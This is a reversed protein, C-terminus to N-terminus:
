DVRTRLPSDGAPWIGKDANEGDDFVLYSYKGYHPVKRGLAALDEPRIADLLGWTLGGALGTLVVSREGSAPDVSASLRSAAVIEDALEGRGLLWVAVGSELAGTGAPSSSSPQAATGPRSGAGGTGVAGSLAALRSGAEAEGFVGARQGKSWEAALEECAARLETPLDDAIVIAISDAGLVQSLRTPIEERHLRRLVHFDPDVALLTPEFGCAVTVPTRGATVRVERDVQHDHDGLVRVPVLVAYPAGGDMPEQVLDFSLSREEHSGHVRPNEIHLVPAGSREIWQRRWVEPDVDGVEAFSRFLDSWTARRWLHDRYFRHLADDFAADGVARRLQHIVMMSKSYGVAQTTFDHRERFETLPLDEAESVYDRYNQLANLRYRMADEEGKREEYFYDAGYTTLGECWNGESRDVFVGNGWWNHLIEHGYSTDLIFPLRIVRDGLLTFSPMGFGSQWFNEVLAFKAFPYPGIKEEYLDLYAGTGRLYRNYISSDTNAYTFTQAMVEGHRLHNEEYPGGILYIEEMPHPCEWRMVRDAGQVVDKAMRGQSVTRWAAPTTTTLDFTFIEEPRTPIWFTSYALFAGEPLILGATTEFSRAYAADPAQLSDVITGEYVLTVVVTDPWVAPGESASANNTGGAGTGGSAPGGRGGAGALALDIQRANEFGALEAYPPRRWFAKPQLRASETAVVEVGEGEVEILRLEKWLLVPFVADAPTGPAHLVHIRDTARLTGSAPDLTAAVEHHLIAGRAPNETSVLATPPYAVPRSDLSLTFTGEAGHAAQAIGLAVLWACPLVSLSISRSM